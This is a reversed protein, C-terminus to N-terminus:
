DGDNRRPYDERHHTGRSERRTLAATAVLRGVTIMNRIEISSVLDGDEAYKKRAEAELRDLIDLAEQLSRESRVVTVNRWMVDKIAETITSVAQPDIPRPLDKILDGIRNEM